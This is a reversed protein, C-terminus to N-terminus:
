GGDRREKERMWEEKRRGGSSWVDGKCKMSRCHGLDELLRKVRGRVLSRDLEVSTQVDVALPDVTGLTAEDLSHGQKRRQGISRQPVDGEFHPAIQM